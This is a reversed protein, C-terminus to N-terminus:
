INYIDVIEETVDDWTELMLSPMQDRVYQISDCISMKNQMNTAVCSDYRTWEELAGGGSVVCPTGAALAEGVTLGFAEFSSLTLYVTAGAYLDPLRDHDVYGLFEVRDAVMETEAIRELEDRYPGKGAVLLDFEPLERLARIVHQIGKYQELRGVTLLYPRDRQVPSASKFREVDIGNPIVTAEIGFSEALQEREWDSVAIVATAQRLVWKGAPRYASLLVDRLQSASGGHYHPTVLFREDGGALAAFLLPFSHYNHAHVVDADVSRISRIMGPAIHFADGPAFGRHRRIEVGERRERQAVASGADATIVTV